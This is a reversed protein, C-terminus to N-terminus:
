NHIHSVSFAWKFGEKWDKPNFHSDRPQATPWTDTNKFLTVKDNYVSATWQADWGSMGLLELEWVNKSGNTMKLPM